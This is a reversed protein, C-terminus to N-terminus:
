DEDYALWLRDVSARQEELRRRGGLMVLFLALYALVCWLFPVGMTLPLNPVVTTPPHLTRWVNVSLYVIPVNFMGFLALGAALKESGPGGYKRLLLYAIFNMELILALTTRVDWPWWTGWSVRGWLPGTILGMLGFLVTVEAAAVALRDAEPRERFLHIGSATGCVFIAAFMAIWAPVHFYFIKGALGMTAEYPAMAIVVPAAAFMVTGVALSAFPSRGTKWTM